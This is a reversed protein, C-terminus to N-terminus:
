FAYGFSFGVWPAISKGAVLYGTVRFLFGTDGRNEYGGGFVPMVSSSPLKLGGTSTELNKVSSHNTILTVGGTVFPSGGDALFYYNMYVPVFTATKNADTDTNPFVTSVTGIGGGAALHDNMVQDFSVTYLMSRGLVEVSLASPYTVRTHAASAEHAGFAGGVLAILASLIQFSLLQRM